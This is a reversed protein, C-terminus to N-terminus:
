RVELRVLGIGLWRADDHLGAQLPSAPAPPVFEIAYESGDTVIDVEVTSDTASFRRSYWAEGIRIRTENGCNLGFARATISVKANRPLAKAFHIVVSPALSADSWRGWSEAVSLGTASTVVPPLGPRSFDIVCALPDEALVDSALGPSSQWTACDADGAVADMLLATSESWSHCRIAASDPLEAAKARELWVRVAAALDAPADGRFYFAGDGAVERFVPLDRAIVAVQHRAAEVIPLGFGEGQSPALLAAAHAYLTALFEDSADDIRVLRRGFEPHAAVAVELDETMWGRKGVIWLATDHGDQWLTDFAAIAQRHGKRPEVTGVMLFTKRSRLAEVLGANGDPLGSTAASAEIDCGLPFHAIRLPTRRQPGYEGLWRALEGAVDRSICILRDATAAASILWGLHQQPLGFPFWEPHQQPLLDYVVINIRVGRASFERLAAHALPIAHPSWTLGLFRDGDRPEVELDEEAEPLGLWGTMFRRALVFRDGAFRVAEVRVGEPPAEILRRLVARAVREIGTRLDHNVLPTVDVFLQSPGPRRLNAAVARAIATTDGGSDADGADPAALKALVRSYRTRPGDAAFREIAAAYREAVHHPAHHTAVYDRANRALRERLTADGELNELAAALEPIEFAAPIVVAADPPFEALAGCGNTILPLGYALCDLAAGSTEGRSESRLQVAVDTAAFYDAMDADDVYGTIAIRSAAGSGAILEQLELHYRDGHGQGVILLRGERKQALRSRSWAEVLERLLKIHNVFGFTSVVFAEADIGLRARAAARDVETEVSRCLAARAVPIGPYCAFRQAALAAAYASHVIVGNAEDLVQANCAFARAIAGKPHGRRLLSAAGFGHSDLLCRSLLGRAPAQADRWIEFDGLFVDHMAVTGPFDRVLQAIDVHFPSNGMHYLVRDYEDFHDVFWGTSRVPIAVSASPLQPAPQDTVLDIDYIEALAPLLRANYTAVGTRAPPMPSVFALRRRAGALAQRAGATAGRSHRNDDAIVRAALADSEQAFDFGLDRIRDATAGGCTLRSTWADSEVYIAHAAALYDTGVRPWDGAVAADGDEAPIRSEALWVFVTPFEVPLEGASCVVVGGPDAFGAPVVVLDPELDQIVSERVVRAAAARPRAGEAVAGKGLGCVVAFGAATDVDPFAYRLRAIMQPGRDTLLLHLHHPGVRALLAHALQLVASRVRRAVLASQCAQLDVVIRM